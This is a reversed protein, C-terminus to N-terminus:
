SLNAWETAGGKGAFYDTTSGTGQELQCWTGSNDNTCGSSVLSDNGAVVFVTYTGGGTGTSPNNCGTLDADYSPDTTGVCKATSGGTYVVQIILKGKLASDDSTSTFPCTSTVKDGGGCRNITEDSFGENSVGSRYSYVNGGLSWNNMANGNGNLGAVGCTDLLPCSAAHAPAAALGLGASLVAAAALALLRRMRTDKRAAAM